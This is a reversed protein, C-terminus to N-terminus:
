LESGVYMGSPNHCSAQFGRKPLLPHSGQLLSVLSTLLYPKPQLLGAEFFLLFIGLVWRPGGYAHACIHMHVQVHMHRHMHSCAYIGCMYM